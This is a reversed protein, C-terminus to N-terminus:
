KQKILSGTREESAKKILAATGRQLSTVGSTSSLRSKIEDTLPIKILSPNTVVQGSADYFRVYYLPEGMRIVLDGCKTDWEIAWNLPRQWGYIDFRGSIIRWNLTSADSFIPQCQEIEMPQDAVFLYPSPIQFLPIDDSRWLDRPELRLMEGLKDENVSTFPYIPIISVAGDSKKFRLRLSFPSRIEIYGQSAARVAPCSLYGRKTPSPDKGLHVKEPQPFAATGEVNVFCWGIQPTM